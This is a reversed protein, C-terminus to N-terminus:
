LQLARKSVGQIKGEENIRWENKKRERRIGGQKKRWWKGNGM